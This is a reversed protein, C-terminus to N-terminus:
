SPRQWVEYASSGDPSYTVGVRHWSSPIWMGARVQCSEGPRTMPQGTHAARWHTTVCLPFTPTRHTPATVAQAPAVVSGLALTLAALALTRNM